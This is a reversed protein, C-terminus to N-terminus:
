ERGALCEKALNKLSAANKPAAKLESLQELVYKESAKCTFCVQFCMNNARTMKTALETMPLPEESGWMSANEMEDRMISKDITVGRDNFNKEYCMVENSGLDAVTEYYSTGSFM